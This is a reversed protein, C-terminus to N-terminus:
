RRSVQLAAIRTTPTFKQATGAAGLAKLSASLDEPSGITASDFEMVKPSLHRVAGLVAVVCLTHGENLPVTPSAVAVRLFGVLRALLGQLPPLMDPTGIPVSAKGFLSEIARAIVRLRTIQQPDLLVKAQLAAAAAGDNAAGVKDWAVRLERDWSALVKITPTPDVLAAESFPATISGKELVLRGLARLRQNSSGCASLVAAPVTSSQGEFRKLLSASLAAVDPCQCLADVAQCLNEPPDSALLRQGDVLIELFAPTRQPEPSALGTTLRASDWRLFETDLSEVSSADYAQGLSKLLQQRCTLYSVVCSLCDVLLEEAVCQRLEHGSDYVFGYLFRYAETARAPDCFLHGKTRLSVRASEALVAVVHAENDISAIDLLREIQPVGVVPSDELADVDEDVDYVVVGGDSPAANLGM